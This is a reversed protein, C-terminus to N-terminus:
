RSPYGRACTGNLDGYDVRGGEALWGEYAAYIKGTLTGHLLTRPAKLLVPSPESNAAEICPAIRM